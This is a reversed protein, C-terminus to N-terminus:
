IVARRRRGRRAAGRRRRRREYCAQRPADAIERASEEFGYRLALMRPITRDYGKASRETDRMLTPDKRVAATHLPSWGRLMEVVTGRVTGPAADPLHCLPYYATISTTERRRYPHWSILSFCDPHARCPRAADAAAFSTSTTRVVVTPHAASPIATSRRSHM